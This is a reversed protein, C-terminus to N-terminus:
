LILDELLFTLFPVGGLISPLVISLDFIISCGPSLGVGRMKREDRWFNFMWFLNRAPDGM